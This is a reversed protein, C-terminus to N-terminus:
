VGEVGAIEIGFGSLGVYNMPTSTRLMISRVGLDRLIQAGLGVDLWQKTRKAESDDDSASVVNAPVGATGDRLYVLM